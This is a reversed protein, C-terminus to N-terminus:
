KKESITKILTNNQWVKIIGDQSSTVLYQSNASFALDWISNIHGTLNYQLRGESDFIKIKGTNTGVAIARGDPSYDIVYIPDGQFDITKLLKGDRGWFKLYSASGSVITKGDPSFAVANVNTESVTFRNAEVAGYISQRLTNDLRTQLESNNINLNQWLRQARIADVLADLRQNSKLQAQSSSILALIEQNKARQENKLAKFYLSFTTVGLVTLVALGMSIVVVLWRLRQNSIQEIQLRAEMEKSREAELFLEREKRDLEESKVIFQYDWDSLSKGQMWLQADKLAQGRLLRSEDIRESDIWAQFAQSYPRLLRLQTEVWQLNFVEAYISNKVKLKNEKKIVLGSLLLEVQERSDDSQPYNGQLIQQYIALIRGAYKSNVLLRARITRLHEPEDQSKWNNIIKSHVLNGISSASTLSKHNEAVLQCLKQTLFPQGGTWALIQQLIIKPQKVKGELGKILPEVEDLNFGTLDIATGINFPTKRKDQILDGPIVVGFLAFTIREYEPNIARQNYCYRILAFFDDVPFKLGLISDIEDIFVFLRQNPFQVLLLEEIFESLRKLLSIDERDSWWSKLSIKESLNFGAWLDYTIGKYWQLPTIEESGIISLDVSTCQCGEQQLRHKTKVLLSSKGMQRCNFIYCFEGRKLAEYLREDAQRFVYTSSDIALSGGVQYRDQIM